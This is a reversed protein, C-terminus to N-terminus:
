IVQNLVVARKIGYIVDSKLAPFPDKIFGMWENIKEDPIHDLKLGIMTELEKRMELM